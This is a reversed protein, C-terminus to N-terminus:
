ELKQFLVNVTSDNSINKYDISLYYNWDKPAIPLITDIFIRNSNLQSVEKKTQLSNILGMQYIVEFDPPQPFYLFLNIASDNLSTYIKKVMPKANFYFYTCSGLSDYKCNVLEKKEFNNFFYEYVKGEEYLFNGGVNLGFYYTSRRLLIGNENYGFAGGNLLDNSYNISDKVKGNRHYSIWYGNKLGKSFYGKNELAGSQNYFKAEGDIVSDNIFKAEVIDNGIRKREYKSASDNCSYISISSVILIIIYKM